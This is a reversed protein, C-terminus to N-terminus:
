RNCQLLVAVAHKCRGSLGAKCTCVCESIRFYDEQNMLRLNIRHPEGKLASTALCLAFVKTDTSNEEKRGCVFVHGAELVREGEVFSRSNNTIDVFDCIHKMSLLRPLPDM